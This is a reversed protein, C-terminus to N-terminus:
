EHGAIWLFSQLDIFDRPGLHKVEDFYTRTMELLASYTQWNPQSQYRLDFVLADAAAQMNTPKLFMHREPQAIFPLLTVIPWTSVKAKGQEQPLDLVSDIYPQFTERTVDPSDIVKFLETIFRKAADRNKLADTIAMMEFSLLMKAKSIISQIRSTVEEINDESILQQGQRNGLKSIFLEHAVWKDDREGHKALYAPDHFGLRYKAQFADITQQLTWRKSKGALVVKNNDKEILPPLNDLIPDSQVTSLTLQNNDLKFAIAERAPQNKFFVYAKDGKVKLVKGLGYDPKPALEVFMGENLNEAMIGGSIVVHIKPKHIFRELGDWSSRYPESLRPDLLGVEELTHSMRGFNCGSCTLVINDLDNNGGRAHPLIHDYQAWLAQFAAHQTANTGGWPIADPYEDIIKRRIESRIVPIGCFRCHYGDRALIHAKEKSTPMRVKVREGKPLTPPATPTERFQVHPSNKGWISDTWDWVAKINALRFLEDAIDRHGQLHASVAADLFRVADFVEPIPPCFCRRFENDVTM